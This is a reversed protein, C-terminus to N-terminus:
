TCRNPRPARRSRPSQGHWRRRSLRPVVSLVLDAAMLAELCDVAQMGAERARRRTAESRGELWTLVTMGQEVLRRGLAAGMEGPSIVGVTVPEGM